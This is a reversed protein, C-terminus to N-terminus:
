SHWKLEIEKTKKKDFDLAKHRVYSKDRKKIERCYIRKANKRGNYVEPRTTQANDISQSKSGGINTPLLM